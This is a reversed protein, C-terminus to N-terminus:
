EPAGVPLVSASAAAQLKKDYVVFSTLVEAVALASALHIAELSRLEPPGGLAAQEVAGGTPCHRGKTPELGIM